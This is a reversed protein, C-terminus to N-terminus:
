NPRRSKGNQWEAAFRPAADEVLRRRDANQTYRRTSTVNKHGLWGAIAHQSAGGDALMTGTFHRLGHFKLGKGHLGIRKMEKYWATEFGTKTYPRGFKSAIITLGKANRKRENLQAVMEPPMPMEAPEGTKQRNIRIWRGDYSSWRIKRIDGASQGCAIAFDLIFVWEKTARERFQRVAWWPWPKGEGTKLKEIEAAPNSAMLKRRVAQRFMRRLLGVTINAMGPTDSLHSQIREIVEYDIEDLHAAHMDEMKQFAHAYTAKTAAALNKYKATQRYEIMLDGLTKRKPAEADVRQSKEYVYVKETGDALIRRVVNRRSRPM